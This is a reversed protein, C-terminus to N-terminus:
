PTREDQKREIKVPLPLAGVVLLQLDRTGKPVGFFARMSFTRGREIWSGYMCQHAGINKGVSVFLGYVSAGGGWLADCDKPVYECARFTGNPLMLCLMDYAALRCPTNTMPRADTPSSTGTVGWRAWLPDSKSSINKVTATVLILECGEKATITLTGSQLWKQGFEEQYSAGVLEGRPDLVEWVPNSTQKQLNAKRMVGAQGVLNTLESFNALFPKQGKVKNLVEHGIWETRYDSSSDADQIARNLVREVHPRLLTMTNKIWQRQADTLKKDVHDLISQCALYASVQDDPYNSVIETL